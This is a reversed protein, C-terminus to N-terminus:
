KKFSPLNEVEIKSKIGSHCNWIKPLNLIKESYLNKENDKILNPDAIIYDIEEIGTTNTYGMWVM